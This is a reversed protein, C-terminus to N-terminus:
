LEQSNQKSNNGAQTFTKNIRKLDMNWGWKNNDAKMHRQLAPLKNLKYKRNTNKNTIMLWIESFLHTKIVVLFTARQFMESMTQNKNQLSNLQFQSSNSRTRFFPDRMRLNREGRKLSQNRSRTRLITNSSSSPWLDKRLTASILTSSDQLSSSNQQGFQISTANSEQRM